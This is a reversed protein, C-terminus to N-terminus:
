RLHAEIVRLIDFRTIAGILKGDKVVPLRRFSHNLFLGAAYYVDMDPPITVVETEMFSEVNGRPIDADAGAALLALCDKETLMGVVRGDRDVVPAGTVHKKLLFAVAELIETDPSVTHVRRDMCDKVMPLGGIASQLVQPKKYEM